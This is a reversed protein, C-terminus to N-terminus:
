ERELIKLFVEVLQPDFNKGSAKKIMDMAVGKPFGKRYPRDSILAQYVEAVAVIRAGLPIEKGKLGFPYGKGDWREHHYLMMPILPNLSQIPRIIDVGIQPHKKIEKFEQPTLKGNKQLIREPIGVKGLDHLMAADEIFEVTASPLRLEKALLGAYRASVEGHEGTYHDKTEITKAFAFIAEIVSQNARKTLKFLKEKLYQPSATKKSTKKVKKVDGAACVQNGGNEKARGLARDAQEILDEARAPEDDPYSAIGLSVKLKITRGVKGFHCLRVRNLIRQAFILASARDTHPLLIVFEEGGYRVVIDSPRCMGRLEWAFQWLVMDGAMHGYVDNISKFYDLDCMIMSLPDGYRKARSFETVIAEEFYRHNYLGTHSDIRALTKLKENTKQLTEEVIKREEVEAELTAKQDQIQLNSYGMEAVMSALEGLYELEARFRKENVVPTESVAKVYEEVDYGFRRAHDRFWELDPEKFFVQGTALTAIHKGRVIIPTGGDMLGHGCEELHIQGPKNLKKTMSVNSRLCCKISAPDGRHFKTCIDRWGSSILVEQQPYSVFGITSGTTRSHKDFVSKLKKLDVLDKISHKGDVLHPNLKPTM